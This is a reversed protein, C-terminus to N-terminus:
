EQQDESLLGVERLGQVIKGVRQELEEISVGERKAILANIEPILPQLDEHIPKGYFGVNSYTKTPIRPLLAALFGTLGGKLLQRRSLNM